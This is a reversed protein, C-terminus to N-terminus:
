WIENVNHFFKVSKITVLVQGLRVRTGSRDLQIWRGHQNHTQMCLTGRFMVTPSYNLIKEEM